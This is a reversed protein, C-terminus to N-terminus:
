EALEWANKDVIVPVTAIISGGGSGNEISLNAKYQSWDKIGVDDLYHVFLSYDVIAKKGAAVTRDSSAMPIVYDDIDSENMGIYVDQNTNNEVMFNVTWCGGDYYPDYGKVYVKLNDDQYLVPYPNDKSITIAGKASDDNGAFPQTKSGSAGALENELSEVRAALSANENLLAEIDYNSPNYALQNKRSQNIYIFGGVACLAVVVLCSVAIIVTKKNRNQPTPIPPTTYEGRNETSENRKTM